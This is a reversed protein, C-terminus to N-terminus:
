GPFQLSTAWRAFDSWLSFLQLCWVVLLVWVAVEFVRTEAFRALAGLRSPVEALATEPAGIQEHQAELQM